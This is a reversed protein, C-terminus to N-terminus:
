ANKKEKPMIKKMWEWKKLWSTTERVIIDPEQFVRRVAWIKVALEKAEDHKGEAHLEIVESSKSYCWADMSDVVIRWSEKKIEEQVIKLRRAREEAPFLKM